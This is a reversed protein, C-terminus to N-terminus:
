THVTLWKPHLYSGLQFTVVGGNGSGWSPDVSSQTYKSYPLVTNWRFECVRM